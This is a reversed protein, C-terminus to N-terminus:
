YFGCITLYEVTWTIETLWIITVKEINGTRQTSAPLFETTEIVQKPDTTQNENKCSIIAFIISVLITIKIQAYARMQSSKKILYLCSNAKIHLSIRM